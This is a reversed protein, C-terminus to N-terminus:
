ASEALEGKSRKACYDLWEQHNVLGYRFRKKQPGYQQCKRCLGYIASTELGLEGTLSSMIIVFFAKDVAKGCLCTYLAGAQIPEDSEYLHAKM